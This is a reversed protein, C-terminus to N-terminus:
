WQLTKDNLERAILGGSPLRKPAGNYVWLKSAGCARQEAPEGLAARIAAEDADALYVLFGPPMAALLQHGRLNTIWQHVRFDATIQAFEVNQHSLLSEKRAHWYTAYGLRYGTRAAVEDICQTSADVVGLQARAATGPDATRVRWGSLAVLVAIALLSTVNASRGLWGAFAFTLGFLPIVWVAELYRVRYPDVLFGGFSVGLFNCIVMAVLFSVIVGSARIPAASPQRAHNRALVFLGMAAAPGIIAFAAFSWAWLPYTLANTVLVDLSTVIRGLSWEFNSPATPVFIGFRRLGNEVLPAFPITLATVAFLLLADRRRLMQGLWGFALTCLLPVIGVILYIKDCSATAIQLAGYAILWGRFHKHSRQLHLVLVLSWLAAVVSMGHHGPLMFNMATGGKATEFVLQLCPALALLLARSWLHTVHRALLVMPVLILGAFGAHYLYMSTRIDHTPLTALWVLIGDPFFSPAPQVVWDHLPVRHTVDHAFQALFLTDSNMGNVLVLAMRHTTWAFLTCLAVLLVSTLATEARKM